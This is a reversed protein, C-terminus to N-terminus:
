RAERRRGEGAVGGHRAPIPRRLPWPQDRARRGRLFARCQGRDARLLRRGLRRANIMRPTQDVGIMGAIADSGFLDIYSWCVSAGMSAGVLLPKDLDLAVIVDRLDAAHRAIRQGHAPRDSLGHWRRDVAIARYGAAVVADIQYAWSAITAM